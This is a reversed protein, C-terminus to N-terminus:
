SLVTFGGKHCASFLNNIGYKKYDFDVWKGNECIQVSRHRSSMSTPYQIIRSQVGQSQLNKNIFDSMAWCDGAGNKEMASATSAGHSYGFKAAAKGVADVGGGGLATGTAGTTGTGGFMAAMKAPDSMAALNKQFVAMLEAFKAMLANSTGDLGGTGTVNAAGLNAFLANNSLQVQDTPNGTSSLSQQTVNQSAQNILSSDFNLNNNNPGNSPINFM